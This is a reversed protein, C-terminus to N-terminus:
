VKETHPPQFLPPTRPRGVFHQFCRLRPRWQDGLNESTRAFDATFEWNSHIIKKDTQIQIPRFISSKRSITTAHSLHLSPNKTIMYQSLGRQCKPLPVTAFGHPWTRPAFLPLLRWSICNPISFIVNKRDVSLFVALGLSAKSCCLQHNTKDDHELWM